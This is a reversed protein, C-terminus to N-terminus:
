PSCCCFLRKMFISRSKQTRYLRRQHHKAEITCNVIITFGGKVMNPHLLLNECKQGCPEKNGFAAILNVTFSNYYKNFRTFISIKL